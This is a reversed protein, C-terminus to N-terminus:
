DNVHGDGIGYTTPEHRPWTMGFVMMVLWTALTRPLPTFPQSILPISISDLILVM